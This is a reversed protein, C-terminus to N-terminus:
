RVSKHKLRYVMLALALLVLTSYSWYYPSAVPSVYHDFWSERILEMPHVLPNWALYSRFPEPISTMPFFVASLLLLPLSLMNAFLEVEKASEQVLCIIMGFALGFVALSLIYLVTPLIDKPIPNLDVTWFLLMSILLWSLIGTVIVNVLSALFHDFLGIQNFDNFSKSTKLTKQCEKMTNNFFHKFPLFAALVFLPPEIFGFEGRGRLGFLIVFLLIFFLPELVVWITGFKFASYNKAMNRLIIAFIIDYQEKIINRKM